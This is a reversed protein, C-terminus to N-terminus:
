RSQEDRHILRFAVVTLAAIPATAAAILAFAYTSNGSCWGLKSAAVWAGGVTIGLLSLYTQWFFRSRWYWAKM